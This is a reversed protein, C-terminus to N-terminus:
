INKFGECLNCHTSVLHTYDSLHLPLYEFVDAILPVTLMVRNSYYGSIKFPHELLYDRKVIPVNQEIANTTIYIKIVM